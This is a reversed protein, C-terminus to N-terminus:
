RPFLSPFCESFRLLVQQHLCGWCSGALFCGVYIYHSWKGGGGQTRYMRSGSSGRGSSRTFSRMQRRPGTRCLPPVSAHQCWYRHPSGFACTKAGSSVLLLSGCCLFYHTVCVSFFLSLLRIIDEPTKFPLILLVCIYFFFPAHSKLLGRLKIDDRGDWKGRIGSWYVGRRQKKVTRMILRFPDGLDQLLGGLAMYHLSWGPACSLCNLMVNLGRRMCHSLHGNICRGQNANVRASTWQFFPSFFQDPGKLWDAGKM